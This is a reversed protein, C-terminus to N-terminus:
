NIVMKSNIKVRNQNLNVAQQTDNLMTPAVPNASLKQRKFSKLAESVQTLPSPSPKILYQSM